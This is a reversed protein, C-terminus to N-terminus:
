SVDERAIGIEVWTSGDDWGVLKAGHKQLVAEIEEACAAAKPQDEALRRRREARKAARPFKRLREAKREPTENM